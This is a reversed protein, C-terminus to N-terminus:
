ANKVPFVREMGRILRCFEKKSLVTQDGPGKPDGVTEKFEVEYRDLRVIRILREGKQYIEDQFIRMHRLARNEDCQCATPHDGLDRRGAELKKGLGGADILGLVRM